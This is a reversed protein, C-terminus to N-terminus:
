LTKTREGKTTSSARAASFSDGFTPQRVETIQAPLHASLLEVIPTATKPFTESQRPEVVSSGVSTLSRLSGLRSSFSSQRPASPTLTPKASTRAISAEAVM